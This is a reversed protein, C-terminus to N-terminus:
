RSANLAKERKLREFYQKRQSGLAKGSKKVGDDKGGGCLREFTTKFKYARKLQGMGSSMLTACTWARAKHEAELNEEAARLMVSLEHFTYRRVQDQRLGLFRYCLFYM